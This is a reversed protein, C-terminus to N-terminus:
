EVIAELVAVVAAPVGRDRVAPIGRPRRAHKQGPKAIWHRRVPLPQDRRQLETVHLDVQVGCRQVSQGDGGAAGRNAAGQQWAWRLVDPAAVKDYLSYRKRGRERRASLATGM